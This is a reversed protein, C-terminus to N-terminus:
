KDHINNNITKMLWFYKSLKILTIANGSFIIIRFDCCLYSHILIIIPTRALNISFFHFSSKIDPVNFAVALLLLDFNDEIM